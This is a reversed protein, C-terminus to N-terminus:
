ITDSEIYHRFWKCFHEIGCDFDTYQMEPFDSLFATTNAHTYKAEETTIPINRKTTYIGYYCEIKRILENLSRPASAGIDYITYNSTKSAKIVCIISKVVDEIYTFDRYIEGNNCVDLTEKNLIKKAFIWPSMDPRGYEGYVSFFRLGITKLNFNSSFVKAILEDTIKTVAYINQPAYSYIDVDSTSQRMDGYVSSSSAFIFKDVSNNKAFCITSYFGLVNNEIYDLGRSYSQRIGTNAALHVITSIRGDKVQINNINAIDLKSYFFNSHKKCEDLRCKKIQETEIDLSALNDIGIVYYNQKLLEIALAHGIFGAVGTILIYNRM